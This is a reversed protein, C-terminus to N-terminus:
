KQDNKQEAEATAAPPIAPAAAATSTASTRASSSSSSSSSRFGSATKALLKGHTGYIIEKCQKAMLGTLSAYSQDITSKEELLGKLRKFAKKRILELPQNRRIHIEDEISCIFM